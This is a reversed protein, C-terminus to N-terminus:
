VHARGIEIGCSNCLATEPSVRAGCSACFLAQVPVPPEVERGYTVLINGPTRGAAFILPLCIVAGCCQEEGKIHGQEIQESTIRFGQSALQSTTADKQTLGARTNEFKRTIYEM